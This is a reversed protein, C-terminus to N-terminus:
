PLESIDLNSQPGMPCSNKPKPVHTQSVSGGVDSSHVLSHQSAHEYEFGKPNGKAVVGQSSSDKVPQSSSEKVPQSSAPKAPQTSPQKAPQTSPPKAPETSSPETSEVPNSSQQFQSRGLKRSAAIKILPSCASKVTSLSNVHAVCSLAIVLCTITTLNRM